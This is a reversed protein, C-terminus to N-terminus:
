LNLKYLDDETWNYTEWKGTNENYKEHNFIHYYINDRNNDRVEVWQKNGSPSEQTWLYYMQDATYDGDFEQLITWCAGLKKGQNITDGVEGSPKGKNKGSKTIPIDEATRYKLSYDEDMKRDHQLYDIMNFGQAEAGKLRESLSAAKTTDKATFGTSEDDVVKEADYKALDEIDKILARKEDATMHNFDEDTALMEAAAVVASNYARAYDSREQGYLKYKGDVGQLSYPANGILIDKDGTERAVDALVNLGPNDSLDESITYSPNFLATIMRSVNNKANPYRVAEKGVANIKAPLDQSQNMKGSAIKNKEYGWETDSSTERIYPDVGYALNRRLSGLPVAQSRLNEAFDIVMGEADLGEESFNSGLSRIGEWLESQTVAQMPDYVLAKAAAIAAKRLVKEDAPLDKLEQYISAGAHVMAIIPGINSLSQWSNGIKVSNPKIGFMQWIQKEVEDEPEDGTIKGARALPIGVLLAAVTGILGRSIRNAVEHIQMETVQTGGKKAAKPYYITEAIGAALNLPTLEVLDGLQNSGVQIFPQIVRLFGNIATKLGKDVMTPNDTNDLANAMSRLHTALRMVIGNNQYTAEKGEYTAINQQEDTINRGRAADQLQTKTDGKATMSLRKAAMREVTGLKGKQTNTEILSEILAQKLEKTNYKDLLEDLQKEDQQTHPIDIEQGQPAAGAEYQAELQSERGRSFPKDLMTLGMQLGTRGARFLQWLPAESAGGPRALEFNGDKDVYKNGIFDLAGIKTALLVTNAGQKFGHALAEGQFGKRATGTTKWASRLGNEVIRSIPDAAEIAGLQSINGGGARSVLTKASILMGMRLYDTINDGIKSPIGRAQFAMNLYTLWEVASIGTGKAGEYIEKAANELWKRQKETVGKDAILNTTDQLLDPNAVIGLALSDDPTTELDTFNLTGDWEGNAAKQTADSIAWVVEKTSDDTDYGAKERRKMADLVEAAPDLRSLMSVAQTMQASTHVSNQVVQLTAVANKLDGENQYKHYLEMAVGFELTNLGKDVKGQLYRLTDGPDHTNVWEQATAELQSNPLEKFMSELSDAQEQTVQDQALMAEVTNTRFKSTYEPGIGEPTQIDIGEVANALPESANEEAAGITTPQEIVPPTETEATPTAEAVPAEQQVAAGEPAPKTKYAQVLQAGKGMADIYAGFDQRSAPDNPLAETAIMLAAVEPLTLEEHLAKEYLAQITALAGQQDVMAQGQSREADTITDVLKLQEPEQQAQQVPEVEQTAEEEAVPLITEGNENQRYPEIRQQEEVASAAQEEVVLPATNTEAENGAADQAKQISGVMQEAAQEAEQESLEIGQQAAEAQLEKAIAKKNISKTSYGALNMATGMILGGAAGGAFDDAMQQLDWVLVDPDYNWKAAGREVMGQLTEEAGETGGVMAAGRAMKGLQATLPVRGATKAATTAAAEAAEKVATKGVRGVIKGALADLGGASEILANPVATQLAAEAAQEQTAGDDLAGQFAEDFYRLTRVTTAPIETAVKIAARSFGAALMEPGLAGMTVATLAADRAMSPASYAVAMSAKLAIDGIKTNPDITDFANQTAAEREAERQQQKQWYDEVGQMYRDNDAQSYYSGENHERGVDRSTDFLFNSLHAVNHASYDGVESNRTFTRKNGWENTPDNYTWYHQQNKVSNNLAGAKASKGIGKWFADWKENRSAKSKAQNDTNANPNTGNLIAQFKDADSIASKVTTSKGSTTKGTSTGASPNGKNVTSTKSTNNGGNPNTGNLIAQFKEEDSPDKKKAM